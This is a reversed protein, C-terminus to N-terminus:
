TRPVNSVTVRKSLVRFRIRTRYITYRSVYLVRARRMYITRANSLLGAGVVLHNKSSVPPFFCQTCTLARRIRHLTCCTYIYISYICVKIRKSEHAAHVAARPRWCLRNNSTRSTINSNNNNSQAFFPHKGHPTCLLLLIM